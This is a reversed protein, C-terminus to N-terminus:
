LIGALVPGHWRPQPQQAVFAKKGWWVKNIWLARLLSASVRQDRIYLETIWRVPEHNKIILGVWFIAVPMDQEDIAPDPAIRFLRKLFQQRAHAFLHSCGASTGRTNNPPLHAVCIPAGSRRRRAITRSARRPPTRM